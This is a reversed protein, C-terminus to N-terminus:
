NRLELRKGRAEQPAPGERLGGKFGKHTQSGGKGRAAERHERDVWMVTELQAGVCQSVYLHDEVTSWAGHSNTVTPSLMAEHTTLVTFLLCFLLLTFCLRLSIRWDKELRDIKLFILAFWRHTLTSM